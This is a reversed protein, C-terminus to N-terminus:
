ANESLLYDDLGTIKSIRGDFQGGPATGPDSSFHLHNFLAPCKFFSHNYHKYLALCPLFTTILLSPCCFLLSTGTPARHLPTSASCNSRRM